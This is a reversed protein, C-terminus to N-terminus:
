FTLTKLRDFHECRSLFTVAPVHGANTLDLTPIQLALSALKVHTACPRAGCPVEGTCFTDVTHAIADLFQVGDVAHALGDM